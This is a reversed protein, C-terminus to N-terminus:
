SAANPRYRSDWLIGVLQSMFGHKQYRLGPSPAESNASKTGKGGAAEM